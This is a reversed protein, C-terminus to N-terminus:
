SRLSLVPIQAWNQYELVLAKKVAAVKTSMFTSGSTLHVVFLEPIEWQERPRTAENFYGSPLWQFWCSSFM